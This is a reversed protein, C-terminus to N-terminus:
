IQSSLHKYHKFTNNYQESLVFVVRVVRVSFSIFCFM